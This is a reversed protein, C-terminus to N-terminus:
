KLTSTSKCKSLTSTFGTDSLNTTLPPLPFSVNVSNYIVSSLPKIPCIAPPLTICNIFFLSISLTKCNASTFSTSTNLQAVFMYLYPTVDSEDPFSIISLILIALLPGDDVSVNLSKFM